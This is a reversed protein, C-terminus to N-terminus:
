KKALTKRSRGLADAKIMASFLDFAKIEFVHNHLLQGPASLKEAAQM